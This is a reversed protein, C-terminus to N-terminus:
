PSPCVRSLCSQISGARQGWGTASESRAEAAQRFRGRPAAGVATMRRLWRGVGCSSRAAGYGGTGAQGRGKGCGVRRWGEGRNEPVARRAAPDRGTGKGRCGRLGRGSDRMVWRRPAPRQSPPHCCYQERDVPCGRQRRAWGPARVRKPSLCLVSTFIALSGKKDGEDGADTRITEPCKIPENRNLFTIAHNEFSSGMELWFKRCEQRCYLPYLSPKKGLSNLSLNRKKALEQLFLIHCM